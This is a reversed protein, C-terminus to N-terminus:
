KMRGWTSRGIWTVARKGRHLSERCHPDDSLADRVIAAVVEPTAPSWEYRAGDPRQEPPYNEPYLYRHLERMADLARVPGGQSAVPLGDLAAARESPSLAEVAARARLQREALTHPTGQENRNM